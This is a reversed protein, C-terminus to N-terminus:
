EADPKGQLRDAGEGGDPGTDCGGDPGTDCGGDPGTDCGTTAVRLGSTSDLMSVMSASCM